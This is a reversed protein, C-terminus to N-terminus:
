WTMRLCYGKDGELGSGGSIGVGGFNGMNGASGTCLFTTGEGHPKWKGAPDTELRRRESESEFVVVAPMGSVISGETEYVTLVSQSDGIKQLVSGMIAINNDAKEFNFTNREDLFCQCAEAFRGLAVLANGKNFRAYRVDSGIATEYDGLASEFMNLKTKANALNYLVDNNRPDKGIGIAEEYDSCAEVFKGLAYNSNGRNILATFIYLIRFADRVPDEARAVSRMLQLAVDYDSRADSYNGCESRANGRLFYPMWRTPDLRICECCAVIAREYESRQYLETGLNEFYDPDDLRSISSDHSNARAFGYVDPFLSQEGVGFLRELERRLLEKDEAAIDLELLIGAETLEPGVANGIVFVSRQRLVRNAAEDGFRPEWFYQRETPRSMNSFMKEVTQENRSLTCRRFHTTDNLDIVVVKGDCQKTERNDTAFWLAVLSDWTFDILGTAAGLHQLKALLQLETDDRGDSVDFGYSRAAEVLVTRHYSQYLRGFTMSRVGDKADKGGLQDFLRRTAGSQVKWSRDRQGRFALRASGPTAEAIKNLYKTEIATM